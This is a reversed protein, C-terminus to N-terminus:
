QTGDHGCLTKRRCANTRLTLALLTSEAIRKRGDASHLIGNKQKFWFFHMGAMRKNGDSFSPEKVVLVMAAEQEVSPYLDEGGFTQYIQGISSKFSDDKENAFWQNGSFKEKCSETTVLSGM